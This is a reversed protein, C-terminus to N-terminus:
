YSLGAKRGKIRSYIKLVINVLLLLAVGMVINIAFYLGLRSINRELPLILCALNRAPMNSLYLCLSLKGAHAGLVQFVQGGGLLSTYSCNSFSITIAISVLLLFMFDPRFLDGTRICLFAVIYCGIEVITLPISLKSGFKSKSLMKSAYYCCCGLSIGAFARIMGTHLYTGELPEITSLRGVTYILYGYGWIAINPAIIQCFVSKFRLQLPFLIFMSLFLASLFWAPSFIEFTQYGALELQLVYPISLM